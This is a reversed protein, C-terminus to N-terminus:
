IVIEIVDEWIIVVIVVIGDSVVFECKKVEKGIFCLIVIM